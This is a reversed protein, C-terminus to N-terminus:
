SKSVTSMLERTGFPAERWIALGLASSLIWRGANVISEQKRGEVFGMTSRSIAPDIRDFADVAILGGVEILHIPHQLSRPLDRALALVGVDFIRSECVIQHDQDVGILSMVPQNPCHVFSKPLLAKRGM